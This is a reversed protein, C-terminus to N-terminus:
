RMARIKDPLSDIKGSLEVVHEVLKRDMEIEKERIENYMKREEAGSKVVALVLVILALCIGPIGYQLLTPSIATEM